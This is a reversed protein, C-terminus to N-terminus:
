EPEFELLSFGLDVVLGEQAFVETVIGRGPAEIRHEMKMAEMIVLVQGKDVHDGPAVAVKIVKGPMPAMFGAHVEDELAGHAKTKEFFFTEGGLSVWVGLGSETVFYPLYRDGVRLRGQQGTVPPDPAHDRHQEGETIRVRLPDRELVDVQFYRDGFKFRQRM